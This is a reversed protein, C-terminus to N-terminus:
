HCDAPCSGVTESGDCNGNGCTFAPCDPTCTFTNEGIALECQGNGCIGEVACDNACNDPSEVSPDCYDDGCSAPMQCDAPCNSLTEGDDLRCTGDGCTDPPPVVCGPTSSCSDDDSACAMLGFALAVLFMLNFTRM